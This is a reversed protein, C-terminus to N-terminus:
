ARPVSAAPAGAGPTGLSGQAGADAMHVKFLHCASGLFRAATERSQFSWRSGMMMNGTYFLGMPEDCEVEFGSKRFNRRWWTPHFLWTESLLNGREGHRRQRVVSVCRKAADLWARSLRHIEAIRPFTRPVLGFRSASQVADPLSIVTTWFRWAHTPLVHICYGGPKLVRRIEAHLNALDSVHELVNSSFVVDFSGDPYPIRRGDYDVVPFLRSDAYNSDPIEIAEVQFGRSALELAQQGTGAGIELIRASPELFRVVREIEWVRLRNVHELSFM